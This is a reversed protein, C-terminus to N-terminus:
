SVREMWQCELSVAAIPTSAQSVFARVHLIIFTLFRMMFWNIISLDSILIKLLISRLMHWGLPQHNSHFAAHGGVRRVGLQFTEMIVLQLIYKSTRKLPAVMVGDGCVQCTNTTHYHRHNSQVFPNESPLLTPFCLM